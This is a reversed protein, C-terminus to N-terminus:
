CIVLLVYGFRLYDLVIAHKSRAGNIIRSNALAGNSVTAVENQQIFTYNLKLSPYLPRLAEYRAMKVYRLQWFLRKFASSWILSM